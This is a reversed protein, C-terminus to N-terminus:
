AAGALDKSIAKKTKQAVQKKQNSQDQMTVSVVKTKGSLVARPKKLQGGLQGTFDKELTLELGRFDSEEANKQQELSSTERQKPYPLGFFAERFTYVFLAVGIFLTVITQTTGVSEIM